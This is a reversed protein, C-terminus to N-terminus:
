MSSKKQDSYSNTEVIELGRKPLICLNNSSSFIAVYMLHIGFVKTFTVIKQGFPVKSRTKKEKICETSFYVFLTLNLLISISTIFKHNDFLFVEFFATVFGLIISVLFYYSGWKLEEHFKGHIEEKEM